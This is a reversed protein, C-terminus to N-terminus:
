IQVNELRSRLKDRDTAGRGRTPVDARANAGPSRGRPVDAAPAKARAKAKLKGEAIDKGLMYFYVAERSANRGQAREAQVAEEVRDAYRARRPDSTAGAQFQTRDAMDQAQFMARRAEQQTARLTRNAQIQWREMDSTDPSRLREEERDFEPDAVPTAPARSHDVARGRREVEAELRALRDADTGRSASAPPTDDVFDIELDDLDGGPDGGGADGSAAPDGGGDAPDSPPDGGDDVGPFLLGLLRKLLASM